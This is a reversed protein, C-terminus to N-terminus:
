DVIIGSIKSNVENPDGAISLYSCAVALFTFLTRMVYNNFDSPKFILRISGYAM